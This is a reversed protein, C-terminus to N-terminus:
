RFNWFRSCINILCICNFKQLFFNKWLVLMFNELRFEFNETKSVIAKNRGINLKSLFWKSRVKLLTKSGILQLESMQMFTRIAKKLSRIIGLKNDILFIFSFIRIGGQLGCRLTNGLSTVGFLVPKRNRNYCFM